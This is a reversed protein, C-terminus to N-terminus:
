QKVLRKIYVNRETEIRIIYIAPNLRQIDIEGNDPVVAQMVMQGSTNYIEFRRVPVDSALTIWDTAPNPHISINDAKDTSLNEKVVRIELPTQILVDKAHGKLIIADIYLTSQLSASEKYIRFRAETSLLGVLHYTSQYVKGNDFDLGKIFTSLNIWRGGNFYQLIFREGDVMDVAAFSFQIELSKYPYLNYLPSQMYTPNGEPHNLQIAYEGEPAPIGQHRKAGNYEGTWDEWGQEFYYGGLVVSQEDCPPCNSGGCDIGTESGNKIGDTCSTSGVTFADMTIADIYIQGVHDHINSQIAFQAKDSLQGYIKFSKSFILSNSFDKKFVYQQVTIWTNGNFYRFLITDNAKLNIARLKFAITITDYTSLDFVPSVMSSAVGDNGKLQISYSGEPSYATKLRKSNAGGSSWSDWGNEFYYGGISIEQEEQIQCPPCEAGGCDIGTETGNKIGDTCTAYQINQIGIVQVADIYIAGTKENTNGQFRFQSNQHLNGTLVIRKTFILSNKFDQNFIYQSVTIWSNGNYYRFSFADQAKLNIARLKFEVIITDYSSLDYTPSTMASSEADNGKLQISYQAEPSYASKLRKSDIGGSSWGDWGTEFYYGGLLDEIRCPPCNPGGCDIGTESGNKIGDNCTPCPLCNSGGCDIGTESGNKIGDNCTPCPPCNPGGCDIGTESGNKIGDTCTPCPPCNPGGCDIGTELGNKKGDTCTPCPPCNPGGCDIGTELGNKIGDTCTPCPPCNPGGCDIGTELGNKIGDTCTPCPPCNPGGCDIGTESGNKIGDNCTPCPPCNPGGCDIGTESGNKIGDTCTPCPPCNPGGCDIGTELGNKIGDTCTPCPPCNPGGCDIGTESGNKKGDNCTPCPPCNPGGCDIGTESGNKKGDNCTPCPPCNPGGCDIGTELGNKIGDTCTPCPPCNSGGCDIGTESGNKIGDTCTPCPPCNPGGCDIGTESGNKVGDTCTATQNSICFSKNESSGFKSGNVLVTSEKKLNYYGNGYNCCIGDGFQDNINFTYCGEPLCIDITNVTNPSFFPGGSLVTQQAANKIAWTTEMPHSDTKIELKLKIQDCSPEGNNGGGPCGTLCGANAVKSRIVNGPQTGFGNSFKIGVNTLHCYSMITGGVNSPPLGPNSCNGEVNYCGDIATNNNNWVCAHTHQSGFLHGLEHAIVEITWSYAPVELFSNNIGAYSMSFAPNQRCLGDVYAIGGSAKYSLLQALDGNFSKRYNTFANLMGTSSTANYPSPTTWVVIESIVTNIQEAAYLTSVQNFISTVFTNVNQTKSGKEIYIDNDVEFYIRVCDSLSRSADIHGRLEEKTYAIQYDPTSCSRSNFAQIQQDNYVIYSDETQIKSLIFNGPTDSCSIMGSVEGDVVSIAAISGPDGKVVGRYHKGRDHSVIRGSPAERVIFDTALPFVEVLELHLNPKDEIPLHINVLKHGQESLTNLVQDNVTFLTFDNVKDFKIKSKQHSKSFLNISAVASEKKAQAVIEYPRIVMDQASVIFSLFFCCILSLLTPKM